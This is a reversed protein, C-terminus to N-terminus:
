PKGNPYGTIESITKFRYATNLECDDEIIGLKGLMNLIIETTSETATQQAINILEKSDNGLTNVRIRTPQSQQAELFERMFMKYLESKKYM